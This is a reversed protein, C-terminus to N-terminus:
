KKRLELFQAPSIARVPSGDYDTLNRTIIYSAGFSVAAAAQFADELDAMPLGLAQVAEHMATPAIDVFQLLESIFGRADTM